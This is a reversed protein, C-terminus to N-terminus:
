AIAVKIFLRVYLLQTAGMNKLNLMEFSAKCIKIFSVYLVDGKAKLKLFHTLIPLSRKSHYFNLISLLYLVACTGKIPQCQDLANGEYGTECVCQPSHSIVRCMAHRGCAGPCPDVCKNNICAKDYSCESNTVCEPRCYPPRGVFGTLCSCSPSDGIIQCISNPGCPTPECPTKKM